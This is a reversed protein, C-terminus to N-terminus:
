GTVRSAAARKKKPEDPGQRMADIIRALAKLSASGSLGLDEFEGEALAECLREFQILLSALEEHDVRPNWQGLQRLLRKRGAARAQRIQPHEISLARLNRRFILFSRTSEVCAEALEESPLPPQLFVTELIAHEAEEWIGLVEIFIEAKDTFWRYFTQPAFGARRAIRNTDTAGFGFEIFEAAAAQLLLTRTTPAETPPESRPPPTLARAM